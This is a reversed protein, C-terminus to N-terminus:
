SGTLRLFDSVSRFLVSVRANICLYRLQTIYGACEKKLSKSRIVWGNSPDSKVSAQCLQTTAAKYTNKKCLIVHFM